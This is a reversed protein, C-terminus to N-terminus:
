YNVSVTVEVTKAINTSPKGGKFAVKYDALTLNFKSDLSLKGDKVSITAKEKIPNTVGNITLDGEIDATYSGDNKFNVKDLNVIKGTLKAKPNTKTNLFKKSNFHEQMLAKEFEFSQMPVSFVIDGTSPDITGVSAYNNAEINEAPTTSFFKFHTKTTTQKQAVATLSIIVLAIITLFVKKM